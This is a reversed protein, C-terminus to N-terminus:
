LGPNGLWCAMFEPTYNGAQQVNKSSGSAQYVHATVYDGAALYIHTAVHMRQPWGTSCRRDRAIGPSVGNKRLEILSDTGATVADIQLHCVFEYVGAIPATIRGTNSVTSHLSATDYREANWLIETYTASAVSQTSSRYVRCRPVDMLANLNDRLYTNWDTHSVTGGVIKAPPTTWAM